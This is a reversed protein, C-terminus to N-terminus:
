KQSILEVYESKIVQLDEWAERKKVPTRLLFSPHYIPMARCAYGMESSLTRSQYDHWKGRLKTIGTDVGLLAKAAVGGVIVLIQPRILAIHREVFPLSIDIEADTPTRNGPPRWNLITTIYLPDLLSDDRVGGRSGGMIHPPHLPPHDPVKMPEVQLLDRSQPAEGRLRSSWERTEYRSLGIAAFMKDLLAGEEGCFPLGQQDDDTGPADGVIMVRASPNGDSFVIHSAHRKIQIGDFNQIAARLDDVTQAVTSLRIAEQTAEPTAIIASSAPASPQRADRLFEREGSAPLPNPHPANSHSASPHAPDGQYVPPQVPNVTVKVLVDSLPMDVGSELQWLLAGAPNQFNESFSSTVTM